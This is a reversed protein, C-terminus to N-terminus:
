FCVAEKFFFKIENLLVSHFKLVFGVRRVEDFCDIIMFVV